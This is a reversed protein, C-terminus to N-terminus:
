QEAQQTWREADETTMTGDEGTRADEYGWEAVDPVYQARSLFTGRCVLADEPESEIEALTRRMLEFLVWDPVTAREAPYIYGFLTLHSHLVRWHEGFRALLRRWNLVPGSHRIIHAVDAGDYREREMIFAKSWITEEPPCLKVATGLLVAGPAHEFWGEDVVSIGNGSGFIIDIFIEGWFAKALWHPFTVEVTFGAAELTALARACDEPTVFLDLDKTDRTIGMLPELGYTGGVLVPVGESSLASLAHRYIAEAETTPQIAYAAAM